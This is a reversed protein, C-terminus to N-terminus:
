AFRFVSFAPGNSEPFGPAFNNGVLYGICRPDGNAMARTEGLMCCPGAREVDAVFYGVQEKDERDFMMHENLAYHRVIALGAPGRFAKFTEPAGVTYARNFAHTMLVGDVERYRQPDAPPSCHHVEWGGWDLSPTLLAEEAEDKLALSFTLIRVSHRRVDRDDGCGCEMLVARCRCGLLPHIAPLSHPLRKIQHGHAPRNPSGPAPLSFDAKRSLFASRGPRKM